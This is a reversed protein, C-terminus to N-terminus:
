EGEIDRENEKKKKGIKKKENEKMKRKEWVGKEEGDRNCKLESAEGVYM